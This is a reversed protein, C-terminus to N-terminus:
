LGGTDLVLSFCPKGVHLQRGSGWASEGALAVGPLAKSTFPKIWLLSLGASFLWSVFCMSLFQPVYDTPKSACAIDSCDEWLSLCSIWWWVKIVVLLLLCVRSGLRFLCLFSSHHINLPFFCGCELRHIPGFCMRTSLDRRLITQTVSPLFADRPTAPISCLAAPLVANIWLTEIPGWQNKLCDSASLKKRGKKEARRHKQQATVYTVWAFPKCSVPFVTQEKGLKHSNLAGIGPEREGPSIAKEM